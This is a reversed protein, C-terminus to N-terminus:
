AIASGPDITHHRHASKHYGAYHDIMQQFCTGRHMVPSSLLRRPHYGGVGGSDKLAKKLVRQDQDAYDHSGQ